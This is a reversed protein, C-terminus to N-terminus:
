AAGRRSPAPGVPTRRAQDRNRPTAVSVGIMAALEEQTRALSARIAEVDAPRYSARRSARAEGRAIHGAHRVSTVLEEVAEGKM